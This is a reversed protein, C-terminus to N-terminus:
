RGPPVRYAPNAPIGLMRWGGAFQEEIKWDGDERRLEVRGPGGETTATAREGNERVGSVKVASFADSGPSILEVVDECAAFQKEPDLFLPMIARFQYEGRDTLEACARKGDRDGLADMFAEITREPTDAEDAGGCCSLAVAM